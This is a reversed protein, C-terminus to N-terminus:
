YTILPSMQVNFCEVIVNKLFWFSVQSQERNEDDEPENEEFSESEEENEVSEGHTEGQNWSELEDDEEEGDYALAFKQLTTQLLSAKWGKV